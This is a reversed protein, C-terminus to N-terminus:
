FFFQMGYIITDIYEAENVGVPTQFLAKELIELYFLIFVLLADINM